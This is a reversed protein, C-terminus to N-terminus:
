AEDAVERSETGRLFNQLQSRALRLAIIPIFERVKAGEFQGSGSDGRSLNLSADMCGHFEEILRAAVFTTEDRTERM